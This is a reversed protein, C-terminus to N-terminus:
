EGQNVTDEKWVTGTYTIGRNHEYDNENDEGGSVNGLQSNTMPHIEVNDIFDYQSKEPKMVKSLSIFTYLSGAPLIYEFVDEMLITDQLIDPLIIILDTKDEVKYSIDFYLNNYINRLNQSNILLNITDEISKYSGKNKLIYTFASCLAILDKVIYEHKSEFGLTTTLLDIINSNIGNVLSKDILDSGTKIYNFLIEFLRGIYSFDRSEKYYVNPVLNKVKM